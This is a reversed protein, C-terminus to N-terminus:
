DELLTLAFEIAENLTMAKGKKWANDFAEEGLQSRATPILSTYIDERSPDLPMNLLDRLQEAAGWLVGAYEYEEELAAAQALGAFSYALGGKDMVELKSKLSEMHLM